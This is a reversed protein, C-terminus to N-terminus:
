AQHAVGGRVNRGDHELALTRRCPRRAALGVLEPGHDAAKETFAGVTLANWAQGPDHVPDTDSRDLHAVKLSAPDVNGACLVFLRRAPEAGEDLYVLGRTEPDFARGAALADVAASWSTPQGRDREDTASIAMSFCRRREPAEIEVRSAAEATIAGYLEPPNEGTPPLIKVSELRHRLSVPHSGALVPALDGYLALGAMETGHGDHDHTGWGPDCSHCDTTGLTGELLPHGRNVGTDLICVTSADAAPPRTRALLETAWEGQEEPSMDVFVTATEKAKRVEALDHLVDVSAALQAPSAQVLTVIRDDFQLRRSAVELGQLGAFEMLRSLESGDQRRLWVEWWIVEGDDPYAESTDTWLGRLTALRLAAVPDLMDEHRREGKEKPTTKAYSEFRKFFHRVKGEPVFVTAREIRRPKEEETQAHSVAVLEIGQRADELSTLQLPVGPQSEFQIYVGPEAGHVEIGADARRREAEVVTAKLARELARGHKARSAPPKPRTIEIKRGYPKYAETSPHGPVILHKRNRPAAM